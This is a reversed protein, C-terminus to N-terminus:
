FRNRFRLVSSDIEELSSAGTRAIISKLENNIQNLRDSVADSGGKLAEMLNRGICVADAGLALAKFVDMGSEFGCDVFIDLENGVEKVIEPLIMLPPVSSPMIGHHHSVVIGAAGAEVCKVADSVSLVGKVVFPVSSAAVFEKMEALSKSKMPLGYVNDYTGNGSYAHDIDMGVAVAHNAIANEIKHFIINNDEHPKIIRVIDAGTAGMAEMDSDEGMGIFCLADAKKAGLAYEVMGNGCVGHLHSLAATAVPMSYTRGLLKKEMNPLTSDIYRTEVLISDLYERTIINSDCNNSMNIVGLM